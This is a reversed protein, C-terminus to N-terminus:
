RLDNKKLSKGTVLSLLIIRINYRLKPADYVNKFYAFYFM